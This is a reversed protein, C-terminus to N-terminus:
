ATAASQKGMMFVGLLVLCTGAVQLATIPEGLFFHAQVITSVPGISTIISTNNSGIKKMGLSMLFSPIVTAVLALLMGFVWISNPLAQATQPRAIAYHGLVGVTAALMAYATYRMAGVRPIWKGSGVLYFAYTVACCFVMFSGWYFGPNGQVTQWEGWYALGIGCYTLVLAWTQHRYLPTKFFFTNILVALSPYLFLILRELGASVYQLGVFDFLSSLYYGLVGMLLVGWLDKPRLPAQLRYQWFAVAAYFPLSFLMRLALLSVPDVQTQQFALKVLIAKSSFLIAAAFSLAFGSGWAWKFPGSM